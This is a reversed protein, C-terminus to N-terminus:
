YQGLKQRNKSPKLPMSISQLYFKLNALGELDTVLPSWCDKM